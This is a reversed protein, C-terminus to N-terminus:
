WIKEVPRALDRVDDIHSKHEQQMKDQLEKQIALPPMWRYGLVSYIQVADAGAAMLDYVKYGHDVGGSAIVSLHPYNQKVWAVARATNIYLERGSLGGLDGDERVQELESQMRLFRAKAGPFTNFLIVGNLGHASVKDLICSLSEESLDPSLKAYVAKRVPTRNRFDALTSLLEELYDWQTDMRDHGTNPCSLNIEVYDAAAYAMAFSSMVDQVREHQANLGPTEAVSLGVCVGNKHAKILDKDVRQALVEIGPNNLGMSNQMMRDAELLKVRPRYPNGERASLTGTGVTIAGFGVQGFYPIFEGYKVSGAALMIPGNMVLPVSMDDFEIKYDLVPYDLLRPKPVFAAFRALWHFSHLRFEANRFIKKVTALFHDGLGKKYDHEQFDQMSEGMTLKPM